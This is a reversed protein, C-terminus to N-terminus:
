PLNSFCCGNWLQCKRDRGSGNTVLNALAKTVLLCKHLLSCSEFQCGPNDTWQELGPLSDICTSKLHPDRTSDM